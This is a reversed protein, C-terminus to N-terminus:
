FFNNKRDKGANKLKEKGTQYSNDEKELHNVKIILLTLLILLIGIAILSKIMWEM